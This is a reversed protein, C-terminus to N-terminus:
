QCFYSWQLKSSCYLSHARSHCLLHLTEVIPSALSDRCLVWHHHICPNLMWLLQLTAIIILCLVQCPFLMYFYQAYFICLTSLSRTHLVSFLNATTSLSEPTYFSTSHLLQFPCFCFPTYFRCPMYLMFRLLLLSCIHMASVTFSPHPASTSFLLLDSLALLHLYLSVSVLSCLLM